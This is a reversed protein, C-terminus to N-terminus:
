VLGHMRAHALLIGAAIAVNLSEGRGFRPVRVAIDGAARVAPSAGQAESGLVIACRRSPRWAPLEVAGEADAVAVQYGVARAEGLAAPLDIDGVIPVHFLAGATSRVVKDNFPDVCGCGLLVGRAGFWAATRLITGLNGPDAVADLALLLADGPRFLAAADSRPMRVRAVVGQSQETSSIRKADRDGVERIPVGRARLPELEPRDLLDARVAVCEIPAHASEVLARWGELLFQSSAARGEKRQLKRFEEVEVRTLRMDAM